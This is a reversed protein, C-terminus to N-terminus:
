IWKNYHGMKRGAKIEEKGYVYLKSKPDALIQPAQNIDAGILNHMEIPAIIETSGFPLDCIARINQEFQSTYCGDMTWHGSNHPRPAMENFIVKGDKGIFYEVALLGIIKLGDALQKTYKYAKDEITKDINSPVKSIDLIGNKHTNLTLPFCKSEGDEKRAIVVSAECAFDVFSELVFESNIKDALDTVHEESKLLYQGKGDYGLTTTKLIAPFGLEKISKKLDEFSKVVRFKATNIGLSNAFTKEKLRNQCIDLAYWAPRVEVFQELYKVSEVPINEFELTIVDVSEAFEKLNKEDEYSAHFFKDTVYFGPSDKSDSYFVTKYGLHAAEIALMKGLQGAGIIGITKITM